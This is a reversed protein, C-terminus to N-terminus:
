RYSGGASSTRGGCTRCFALFVVVQLPVQAKENQPFDQLDVVNYAINGLSTNLQQSINMKLSYSSISFYFPYLPSFPLTLLPVILLNTKWLYDELPAELSSTM